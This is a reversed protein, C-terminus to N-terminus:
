SLKRSLHTDFLIGTEVKFL